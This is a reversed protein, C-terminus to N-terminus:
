EQEEDFRSNLLAILKCNCSTIPAWLRYGRHSNTFCNACQHDSARFRASLPLLAQETDLGSTATRDEAPCLLTGHQREGALEETHRTVSHSRSVLMFFNRAIIHIISLHSAFACKRQASLSFIPASAMLASLSSM